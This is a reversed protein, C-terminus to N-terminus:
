QNKYHFTQSHHGCKVEVQEIEGSPNELIDAECQQANSNSKQTAEVNVIYHKGVVSQYKGGSIQVLNADFDPYQSNLQEFVALLKPKLENLGDSSLNQFGGRIQRKAKQSSESSQANETSPTQYAYVRKEDGCVLDLKVFKSWSQEWLKITCNVHVNNEIVEASLVYSTGAVVQSTASHIHLLVLNGGNAQGDLHHLHTTVTQSLKTLRQEDSIPQLGGPVFLPPLPLQAPGVGPIEVPLPTQAPAPAVGIMGLPRQVLAAAPNPEPNGAFTGGVIGLLSLCVVFLKM